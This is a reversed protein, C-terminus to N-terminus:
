LKLLNLNFPLRIGQVDAFRLRNNSVDFGLAAADFAFWTSVLINHHRSVLLAYHWIVREQYCRSYFNAFREPFWSRNLQDLFIKTSIWKDWALALSSKVRETREQGQKLCSSCSNWVGLTVSTQSQFEQMSLITYWKKFPRNKWNFALQM